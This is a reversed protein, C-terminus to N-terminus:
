GALARQMITCIEVMKLVIVLDDMISRQQELIPVKWFLNGNNYRGGCNAACNLLRLRSRLRRFIAEIANSPDFIKKRSRCVISVQDQQTTKQLSLCAEILVCKIR